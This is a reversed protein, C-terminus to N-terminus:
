TRDGTLMVLMPVPEGAARFSEVLLRTGLKRAAEPSLDLFGDEPLHVIVHNNDHDVTAKGSFETM